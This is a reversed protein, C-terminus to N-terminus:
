LGQAGQEACLDGELVAELQTVRRRLADQEAAASGGNWGLVGPLQLFLILLALGAAILGLPLTYRAM